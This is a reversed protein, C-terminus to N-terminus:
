RETPTANAGVVRAPDLHRDFFDGLRQYFDIRNREDIFGHVEGSYRYAEVVGGAKEIASEMMLLHKEHVRSDETGHALLIPIKIEDAHRAPSVAKLYDSDDWSDGILEDNSAELFLYGEDDGLITPLDTVGAFSAAARFLDPTKVAAQLSAYGGYSAGYIGIRDPDAFGKEILWHAGDTLDDQMALGFEKNGAERHERGYGTSGRFNLQFVTYGRSAFFQAESDWGWEDQAWPGGHVLIIAATPGTAGAPRTVFGPIVLGDRAEFEVPRMRVLDVEELAPHMTALNDIRGTRADYLHYAPPDVDSETRIVMRRDFVDGNVVKVIQGPFQSEVRSWRAEASKDLWFQRPGDPTVYEVSLLKGGVRSTHVGKVDVRDHGFIKRGLRRRDLDYEYIAWRGNEHDGFVLIIEPRESLGAFGIKGLEGGPGKPRIVEEFLDGDKKRAHLVRKTSYRQYAVGARVVGRHDTHWDRIGRVGKEAVSLTGSNVNVRTANVSIGGKDPHSYGILIHDPDEPLWDVVDDQFQSYEQYLWDEGLYKTHGNHIDVVMLRSQRARVGRAKSFPMETSIIIKDNSPWGIRRIQRSAREGSVGRELTALARIEGGTAERVFLVDVGGRSLVGALKTGDPSIVLYNLLPASFFDAARSKGTEDVVRDVADGARLTKGCGAGVLAALLLLGPIVVAPADRLLTRATYKLMVM